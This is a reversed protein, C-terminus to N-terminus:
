LSREEVKMGLLGRAVAENSLSLMKVLAGGFRTLLVIIFLAMTMASGLQKVANTTSTKVQVSVILM